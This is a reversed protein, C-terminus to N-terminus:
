NSSAFSPPTYPTFILRGGSARAITKTVEQTYNEYREDDIEGNDLAEQVEDLYKQLYRYRPEPKENFWEMFTKNTKESNCGSHMAMYNFISDKSCLDKTISRDTKDFLDQAIIHDTNTKSNILFREAIERSSRLKKKKDRGSYKVIWACEAESSSPFSEAIKIFNQKTKYNHIKVKQVDEVLAKRRFPHKTSRGRIKDEAANIVRTIGDRENKPLTQVMIKMQDLKKFQISELKPLEEDRLDILLRSLNYQPHKEAKAKIKRFVNAEVQTMYHEYENLVNIYQKEPVEDLRKLFEEEFVPRPLMPKGCSPCTLGDINCIKFNGSKEHDAPVQSVPNIAAFYPVFRFVPKNDAGWLSSSLPLSNNIVPSQGNKNARIERPKSSGNVLNFSVGSLKM